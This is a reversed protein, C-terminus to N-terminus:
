PDVTRVSLQVVNARPTRSMRYQTMGSAFFMEASGEEKTGADNYTYRKLLTGGDTVELM